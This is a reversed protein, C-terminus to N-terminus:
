LVLVKRNDYSKCCRKQFECLVSRFKPWCSLYVFFKGAMFAHTISTCVTRALTRRGYSQVTNPIFEVISQLYEFANYCTEFTPIILFMFSLVFLVKRFERWNKWQWAVSNTQLKKSCLYIMMLATILIPLFCSLVLEIIPLIMRRFNENYVSGFSHFTCEEVANISDDMPALGFTWFYHANCFVVILLIVIMINKVTELCVIQKTKKPFSYVLAAEALAGTISWRSLHLFVGSLFSYTQCWVESSTIIMNTVDRGIFIRAFENGCRIYLVLLDVLCLIAFYAASSIHKRSMVVLTVMSIANGVTGIALLIPTGYQTIRVAAAMLRYPSSEMEQMFIEESINVSDYDFNDTYTGYEVFDEEM